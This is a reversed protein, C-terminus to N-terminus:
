SCASGSCSLTTLSILWILPLGFISHLPASHQPVQQTDRRRVLEWDDDVAKSGGFLRVFSENAEELSFLDDSLKELKFPGAIPTDDGPFDETGEERTVPFDDLVWDEVSSNTSDNETGLPNVQTQSKPSTTSSM